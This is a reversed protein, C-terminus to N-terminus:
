NCSNLVTLWCKKLWLVASRPRMVLIIIKNNNLQETTDLEKCGWSNCHVLSGQGESHGLTQEFVHDNLWHHWGIMEDETAGNEEQGLNEGADSTQGLSNARQMLHGFYQLMLMPMLGELSYEPSIEKLISQNSKRATWPVTLLRRAGCNSLMLEKASLSKNDLEWMWEHSTSFMM